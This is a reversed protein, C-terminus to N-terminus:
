VEARERPMGTATDVYNAVGIGRCKGRAKAESRRAAFGARELRSTKFM